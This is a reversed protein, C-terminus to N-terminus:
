DRPIILRTSNLLFAARETDHNFLNLLTLFLEIRGAGSGIRKSVYNFRSNIEEANGYNEPSFQKLLSNIRPFIYQCNGWLQRACLYITKDSNNIARSAAHREYDPDSFLKSISSNFLSNFDIPYMKQIEQLGIDKILAQAFYDINIKKDEGAVSQLIQIQEEKSLQVNLQPPLQGMQRVLANKLKPTMDLISKQFNSIVAKLRNIRILKFEKAFAKKLLDFPVEIKRFWLEIRIATKREYGDKILRCIQLIRRYHVATWDWNQKLQGRKRGLPIAQPVLEENVWDSLMRPTVRVGYHQLSYCNVRELLVDKDMLEFWFIVVTM